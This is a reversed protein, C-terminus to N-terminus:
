GMVGAARLLTEHVDIDHQASWALRKEGRVVKALDIFEGTYRGGNRPLNLAQRGQRYAGRARALWLTAQGSEMPLLELTGETGGVAFRRRETGSSDSINIRVAATARPYELVALQNDKVRDRGSPTSSAVVRAPKGLLTVIADIPHCGLEFMAGGPLAGIAAREAAGSLKGMSADIELIEGLWGQRVVDFLLEFGPNYRLMYGLQVTLGRREAELRMAKFEVHGLAGPKDLHVHKGAQLARLATACSEEVATEVVIAKVQPDRLLAAEDSLPVGAYPKSQKVAEARRADPEAWGAVSWLEPLERVAQLKGAAHAHKTGIQALAPPRSAVGSAARAAAATMGTLFARRSFSVSPNM